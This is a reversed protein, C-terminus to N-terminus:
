LFHNQNLLEISIECLTEALYPATVWGPAFFSFTYESIQFILYLNQDSIPIHDSPKEESRFQKEFSIKEILSVNKTNSFHDILLGYNREWSAKQYDWFSFQEGPKYFLRVVNTLGSFLIERFKKQIFIWPRWKGM